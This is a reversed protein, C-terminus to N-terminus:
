QKKFHITNHKGRTMLELNEIKNDTKIKNIHHVLEKPLIFRGLYKEMVLRHEYVYGTNNYPHYPSHIYIYGQGDLRRGGKWNNHNKGTKSKSACSNSCFKGSGKKVVSPIVKFRKKCQKCEVEIKRFYSIKEM